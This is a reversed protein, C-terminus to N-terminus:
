RACQRSCLLGGRRSPTVKAWGLSTPGEDNHSGTGTDPDIGCDTDCDPDLDSDPDIVFYLINQKLRFHPDGVRIAFGIGIGFIRRTGRDADFRSLRGSM